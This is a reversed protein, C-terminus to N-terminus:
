IDILNSYLSSKLSYYNVHPLPVHQGINKECLEDIKRLLASSALYDAKYTDTEVTM